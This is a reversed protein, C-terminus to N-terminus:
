CITNDISKGRIYALPQVELVGLEEKLRNVKGILKDFIDLSSAIFPDM